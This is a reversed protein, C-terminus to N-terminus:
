HLQTGFTSLWNTPTLNLKYHINEQHNNGKYFYTTNVPCKVVYNATMQILFIKNM